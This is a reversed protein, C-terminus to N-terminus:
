SVVVAHHLTRHIEETEDLIHDARNTEDLTGLVFLLIAGNKLAKEYQVISEEPIGIGSLGGTFGDISADCSNAKQASAIMGVLPGAVLMPGDASSWFVGWSSLVSWLREWFPGQSGCYKLGAGTTYSGAANAWTDRGVFSLQASDFGASQLRSLAEEALAPKLYIAVCTHRTNM